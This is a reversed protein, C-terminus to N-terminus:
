IELSELYDLTGQYGSGLAFRLPKTTESGILTVTDTTDSDGTQGSNQTDTTARLGNGAGYIFFTRNNDESIIVIDSALNLTQLAVDDVTSRALLKAVFTHTYSKNGGAAEVLESGGSHAFKNGDFRVLGGYSGFDLQNIDAIQALSIQTDLMSKNFAWFTKSLGGVRLLDACNNTLGNELLCSM